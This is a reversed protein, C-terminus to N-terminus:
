RAEAEIIDLYSVDLKSAIILLWKNKFGGRFVTIKRAMIDTFLTALVEVPRGYGLLLRRHSLLRRGGLLLDNLM